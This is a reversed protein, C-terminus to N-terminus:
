IEAPLVAYYIWLLSVVSQMEWAKTKNKLSNSYYNWGFKANKEYNHTFFLATNCKCSYIYIKATAMNRM